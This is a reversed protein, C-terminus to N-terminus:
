YDGNEAVAASEFVEAHKRADVFDPTSMSISALNLKEYKVRLSVIRSPDDIGPPHFLVQNVLSFIATNAGVGLALAAIATLTFLPTKGLTRLALRFDTLM